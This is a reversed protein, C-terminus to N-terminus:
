RTDIQTLCAIVVIHRHFVVSLEPHDAGGGGEGHPNRCMVSLYDPVTALAKTYQAMKSGRCM